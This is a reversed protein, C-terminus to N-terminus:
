LRPDWRQESPPPDKGRVVAGLYERPDQKTSATELAARALAVNGDKAKLVGALLGGAAKGLLAKGRDFYDKEPDSLHPPKDASSGNTGIVVADTALADKKRAIQETRSQETDTKEPGRSEVTVRGNVNRHGNRDEDREDNRYGNRTTNRHRRQREAATPDILDSKFQRGAWNHPYLEGDAEREILGAAVLREILARVKGPRVRLVYAIHDVTPLSGGNRSALCWLNILGKVSDGSLRQVKPDDVLEDYVRFWRGTM